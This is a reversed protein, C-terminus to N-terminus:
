FLFQQVYEKAEAIEEPRLHELILPAHPQHRRLSRLFLGYDLVGRGARPTAPGFSDFRLDKAHVLPTWPGLQDCVREIGSSLAAPDSELLFNAPDMVFGLNPSNLEARLRAADEPTALVHTNEPKLLATVGYDAALRLAEALILRLEAWAEESRNPPHPAWPSKPSLSGTEAVVLDTGFDRCHRILAHWRV